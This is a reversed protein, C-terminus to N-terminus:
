GGHTVAKYLEQVASVLSGWAVQFHHGDLYKQLYQKEVQSPELQISVVSSLTRTRQVLAGWFLARFEWSQLEYGLLMLSSDSLAQRVRWHVPDTTKGFNQSAAVLFTLYDDETLVLSDPVADVGYLHYVLPEQRSPEYNGAFASPHEEIAKHWRAFDTRPAKGAHRLAAEMFEHYGTTLYIPLDLSALLLLPHSTEDGYRPYGLQECMQAFSLADFQADVEELTSAASGDREALDLLRSKVFEVYDEKLALVDQVTEDTVFKFQAVAPLNRGPLPYRTYTAYSDALGAAGGLVLDAGVDGGLIPALKGSRVRDAIIEQWTVPGRQEPETIRIRPM